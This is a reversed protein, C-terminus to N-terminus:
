DRVLRVSFGCSKFNEYRILTSGGDYLDRNHAISTDYAYASASWLHCGSGINKFVGDRGRCGGPLASFGSSNNSTLDCGIDEPTKQTNYWDTQSALSKAIRDDTTTGKWNYGNAILYNALVTWESDTPVHWGAPAIKNPNAPDVVYWNYLVGFKKISDPNFTNNYYCYKPTSANAWTATSTDQPIAKGDNYKTTRVNEMTWQQNGIKVVHYVNGDIDNISDVM